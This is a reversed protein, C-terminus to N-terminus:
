ENSLKGHCMDYWYAPYRAADFVVKKEPKCPAAWADKTPGIILMGEWRGANTMSICYNESIWDPWVEALAKSVAGAIKRKTTNAECLGIADFRYYVGGSQGKSVSCGNNGTFLWNHATDHVTQYM